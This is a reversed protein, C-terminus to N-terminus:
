LLPHIDNTTLYLLVTSARELTWGTTEVMSPRVVPMGLIDAQMQLLLNNGSMGGDVQLRQLVIGCDSHMAELLEKTQFCVAELTARCVHAQRYTPSFQTASTM